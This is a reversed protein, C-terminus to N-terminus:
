KKKFEKIFSKWGEDEFGHVEFTLPLYSFPDKGSKEYYKKM